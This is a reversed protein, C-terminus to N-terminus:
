DIWDPHRGRLERMRRESAANERKVQEWLEDMELRRAAREEATLDSSPDRLERILDIVKGNAETAKQAHPLVDDIAERVDWLVRPLQLIRV